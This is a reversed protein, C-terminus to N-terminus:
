VLRTKMSQKTKNRGLARVEQKTRTRKKLIIDYRVVHTNVNKWCELRNLEEMKESSSDQKENIPNIETVHMSKRKLAKSIKAWFKWTNLYM